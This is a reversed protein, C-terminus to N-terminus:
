WLIIVSVTGTTGNGGPPIPLPEWYPLTITSASKNYREGSQLCQHTRGVNQYAEGCKESANITEKRTAADRRASDQCEATFDLTALSVQEFRQRYVSASM